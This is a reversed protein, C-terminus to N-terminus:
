NEGGLLGRRATDVTWGEERRRGEGNSEYHYYSPTTACRVIYRYEFKTAAPLDLSVKWLPYDGPSTEMLVSKKLDWAGAAGDSGVLCLHEGVV